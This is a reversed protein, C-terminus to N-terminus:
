MYRAPYQTNIRSKDDQGMLEWRYVHRLLTRARMTTLTEDKKERLQTPTHSITKLIIFYIFFGDRTSYISFSFGFTFLALLQRVEMTLHGNM